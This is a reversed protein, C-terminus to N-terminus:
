RACDHGPLIKSRARRKRGRQSDMRHLEAEFDLAETSRFAPRGWTVSAADDVHVGPFGVDESM